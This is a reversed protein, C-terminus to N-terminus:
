EERDAHVRRKFYDLGLKDMRDAAERMYALLEANDIPSVEWQRLLERSYRRIEDPEM